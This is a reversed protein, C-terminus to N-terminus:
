FCNKAECLKRSAIYLFSIEDTIFIKVAWNGFRGTIRSFRLGLDEYQQRDFNLKREKNHSISAKSKVM